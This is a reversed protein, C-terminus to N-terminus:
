VENELQVPLDKKVRIVLPALFEEKVLPAKTEQQDKIGLLDKIV